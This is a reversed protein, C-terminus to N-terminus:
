ESCPKEPTAARDIREIEAVILAAARILDRRASKPKWQSPPWPWLAALIDDDFDPAKQHQPHIQDSASMAYCATARSLDGDSHSDDHATDYGEAHIQRQREFLIDALVESGMYKDAM